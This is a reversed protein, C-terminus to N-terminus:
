NACCQGFLTVGGSTRRYVITGEGRAHDDIWINVLRELQAAALYMLTANQRYDRANEKAEEMRQPLHLRSSLSWGDGLNSPFGRLSTMVRSRACCSFSRRGNRCIRMRSLIWCTTPCSPSSCTFTRCLCRGASLTPGKHASCYSQVVVSLSFSPMRFDTPLCTCRCLLSLTEWCWCKRLWGIRGQSMWPTSASLISWQSPCSPLLGPAWLRLLPHISPTTPTHFACKMLVRRLFVPSLQLRSMMGEAVLMQLLAASVETPTKECM